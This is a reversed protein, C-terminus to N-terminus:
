RNEVSQERSKPRNMTAVMAAFKELLPMDLRTRKAFMLELAKDRSLPPAYTRYETIAAFVDCLTVIRVYAPIEGERVKRPYGTGDLREHHDRAVCLVIEDTEGARRLLEYGLEPHAQILQFEESTLLGTKQLLPAPIQLKGIDHLLAARVIRRQQALSVGIYECFAATLESVIVSHLHLVSDHQRAREMWGSNNHREDKYLLPTLSQEEVPKLRFAQPAGGCSM